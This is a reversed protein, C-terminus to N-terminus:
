VNESHYKALINLKFQKKFQELNTCKQIVEPLGNWLQVGSISICMSKMTTNAGLHKFNLERRLEYRGDKDRFYKLVNVPLLKNRAKYIIQATKFKILDLFKLTKSALFLVNTHDQYGVKHVIRIAKKQITILSKLNNQYTNGWVEVCYTLYPLILSNYLMYLSHYNLLDRAKYLIGISRSVKNRVHSIHPKWSFSHDIIVGLFMNEYVRELTIKDIKLEVNTSIDINKNGFIMFKTKKINLSLKNADFWLKLKGLEDSVVRLLQQLNEGSCFINTDDAFIIFKLINSVKCIDNIYLIFLKPGLISGQPVGCTIDLSTSKYEGIQVFQKRKEIYSKIWNLGVGRIGYRDMKQILLEHDITDFAKKLDIFVGVAFQKNDVSSTLEEILEILAM